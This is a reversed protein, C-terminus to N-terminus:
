NMNQSRSSNLKKSEAPGTAGKGAGGAGMRDSNKSKASGLDGVNGKYRGAAGKGAGGAGMRDPAHAGGYTNAGANAGANGISRNSIANSKSGKDTLPEAYCQTAFLVSAAVIIM